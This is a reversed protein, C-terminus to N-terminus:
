AMRNSKSDIQKGINYADVIGYVWCVLILISALNVLLDSSSASAQNVTNNITSLDLTGVHDLRELITMAQAVVQKVVYTVCICSVLLLTTGRKYQKLAIQGTGPFVLGSLLAGRVSQKM